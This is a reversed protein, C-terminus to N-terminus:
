LRVVGKPERLERRLTHNEISLVRTREHAARTSLRLEDQEKSTLWANLFAGLPLWVLSGAMFWFADM